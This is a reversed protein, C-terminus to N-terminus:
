RRQLVCAWVFAKPFAATPRRRGIHLLGFACKPYDRPDISKLRVSGTSKPQLHAVLLSFAGATVVLDEGLDMADIPLATIEIDLINNTTEAQDIIEGTPYIRSSPIFM